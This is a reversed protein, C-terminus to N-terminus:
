WVRARKEKPIYLADGPKIGFSAYWEDINPVIGNVRYKRWSHPDSVTQNRIAEDTGKGTWAQAWGLFVRQDGTLGNLVPAPKGGLSLHYADLAMALGGLDALNEGMTLDPNIFTGKVPEFKAYQAGLMAARAKFAAADAPTWWDRLAGAADINRGQDDFGHTLEHGIV